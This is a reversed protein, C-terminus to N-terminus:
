HCNYTNKTIANDSTTEVPFGNDNYIHNNFLSGSLIGDTNYIDTRVINHQTMVPLINNYKNANHKDDLVYMYTYLLKDSASFVKAEVATDQFYEYNSYSSFELSKTNPNPLWNKIKLYKGDANLEFMQKSQEIFENRELGYTTFTVNNGLKNYKAYSIIKGSADFEEAKVLDKESYIYTTTKYIKGDIYSISKSLKNAADYEYLIYFNQSETKTMYCTKEPAKIEKPKEVPPIPDKSCKWIIPLLLLLLFFKKM